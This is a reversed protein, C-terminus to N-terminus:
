GKPRIGGVGRMIGLLSEAKRSDRIGSLFQHEIWALHDFLLRFYEMPKQSMKELNLVYNIAYQEELTDERGSQINSIWWSHWNRSYSNMQAQFWSFHDTMEYSTYCYCVSNEFTQSLKLYSYSLIQVSIAHVVYKWWIIYIYIYTYTHTHTHRSLGEIMPPNPCLTM